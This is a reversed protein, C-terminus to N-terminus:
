DKNNNVVIRFTKYHSLLSLLFCKRIEMVISFMKTNNLIIDLSVVIFAVNQHKETAVIIVRISFRLPVSKNLM